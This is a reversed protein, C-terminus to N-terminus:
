NVVESEDELRLEVVRGPIGKPVLSADFYIGWILHRIPKIDNPAPWDTYGDTLVLVVDPVPRMRAMARLGAVMSTGGGGELRQIERVSSIKRAAYAAADCAMVIVDGHPYAKLVEEVVGLAMGLMKDSVSGSTDIVIGIRPVPAVYGPVLPARQGLIRRMQYYAHRNIRQYSRQVKATAKSLGTRMASKLLERPDFGKPKLVQKAWRVAWAPVTGREKAHQLIDKAVAREIMRQNEEDVGPHNPDDPELEYDQRTGTAASGCHPLRDLEENYPRLAEVAASGSGRGGPERGGEGAQAQGLFKQYYEEWLKDEPEGIHEPLIAGPMDFPMVVGRAIAKLDDNIEADQCVNKLLQADPGHGPMRLAREHHRRLAHLMEHLLMWALQNVPIENLWDPDFYVRWYRDTALTPISNVIVQEHGHEDVAKSIGAPVRFGPVAVPRLNLLARSFYPAIQRMAIFRAAQFHRLADSSM